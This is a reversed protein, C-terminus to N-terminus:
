SPRETLLELLPVSVAPWGAETATRVALRSQREYEDPDDLLREVAQALAGADRGEAIVGGRGEVQERLGGVPTAVVPLGAAFAQLVVGSQSAEQYPLVLLDFRRLVTMVDAEGVYGIHWDVPASRERLDPGARGAGHVEGRVERGTALRQIAGVFEDLGKYEVLRGFFGIVPPRTPATRPPDAAPAGLALRVVPRQPVRRRVAEQVAGSYTVVADARRLEIARCLDRVPHREGPHDVADHVTTVYRVDSPLWVRLALTQWLTFMPVFVVGIRGRRVARRLRLAQALLRPVGLVAGAGGAYTRVDFRPITRPPRVAPEVAPNGSVHLRDGLVASLALAYERLLLPGANRRGWQVLLVGTREAGSLVPIREMPASRRAADSPVEM